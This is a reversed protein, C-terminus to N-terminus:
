KDESYTAEFPTGILIMADLMAYERRLVCDALTQIEEQTNDDAEEASVELTVECRSCDIMSSTFRLEWIRGFMMANLHLTRRLEDSFIEKGNQADMLDTMGMYVAGGPMLYIKKAKM